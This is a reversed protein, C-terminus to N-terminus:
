GHDGGNAALVRALEREREEVSAEAPLYVCEPVGPADPLRAIWVSETGDHAHTWKISGGDSSPPPTPRRRQLFARVGDGDVLANNLHKLYRLSRAGNRDRSDDVYADLARRVEDPSHGEAVLRRWAERARAVYRGSCKKPYSRLAQEFGDDPGCSPAVEEEHGGQPVSTAPREAIPGRSAESPTPAPAHEGGAAPDAPADPRPGRLSEEYLGHNLVRAMAANALRQDCRYARIGTRANGVIDVVHVYGKDILRGLAVNVQKRSVDYREALQRQPECYIGIGDRTVGWIRAFVLCEVSSAKLGLGMRKCMWDYISTYDQALSPVSEWLADVEENSVFGTGGM